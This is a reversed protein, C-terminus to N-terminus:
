GELFKSKEYDGKVDASLRKAQLVLSGNNIINKAMMGVAKSREVEEKLEDGKLDANTLSELQQFLIDNLALLTTNAGEEKAM